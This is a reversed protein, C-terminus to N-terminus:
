KFKRKIKDVIDTNQIFNIIMFLAIMIFLGPVLVEWMFPSSLSDYIDKEIPSRYIVIEQM